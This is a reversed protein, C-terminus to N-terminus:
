RWIKLKLTSTRLGCSGGPMGMMTAQIWLALRQFSVSTRLGGSGRYAPLNPVAYDAANSTLLVKALFRIVVVFKTKHMVAAAM